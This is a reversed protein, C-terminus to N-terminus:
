NFSNHAASTLRQIRTVRQQGLMWFFEQPVYRGLLSILLGCCCLSCIRRLLSEGAEEEAGQGAQGLWCLAEKEEMELVQWLYRLYGGFRM